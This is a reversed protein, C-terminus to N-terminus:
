HSAKQNSKKDSAASTKGAVILVYGATEPTPAVNHRTGLILGFLRVLLYAGFHRMLRIGRSKLQKFWFSVPPLTFFNWWLGQYPTFYYHVQRIDFHSDQLKKLWREADLVQYHGLGTTM